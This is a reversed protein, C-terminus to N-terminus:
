YNQLFLCLSQQSNWVTGYILTYGKLEKEEKVIVNRHCIHHATTIAVLNMPRYHSDDIASGCHTWTLFYPCIAHHRAMKLTIRFRPMKM